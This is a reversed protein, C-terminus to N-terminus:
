GGSPNHVTESRALRPEALEIMQECEDDSLLGGFVVLRPSRMAM